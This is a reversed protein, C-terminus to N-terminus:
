NKDKPPFELKLLRNNHDLLILLIKGIVQQETIQERKWLSIVEELHDLNDDFHDFSM